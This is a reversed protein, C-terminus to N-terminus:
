LVFCVCPLVFLRFSKWNGRCVQGDGFYGSTCTCRYSGSTNNCFSNVDCSHNNTSCEDMDPSILLPNTVFHMLVSVTPVMVLNFAVFIVSLFTLLHYKFVAFVFRFTLLSTFVQHLPNCNHNKFVQWALLNKCFANTLIQKRGNSLIHNQWKSTINTMYIQYRILLTVPM